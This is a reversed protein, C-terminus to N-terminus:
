RKPRGVHRFLEDSEGGQINATISADEKKQLKSVADIEERSLLGMGRFPSDQIDQLTTYFQRGRQAATNNDSEIDAASAEEGL